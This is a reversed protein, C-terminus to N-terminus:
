MLHAQFIPCKISMATESTNVPLDPIPIREFIKLQLPPVEAKNEADNNGDEETYLLILEQFATEQFLCWCNACLNSIRIPLGQFMINM